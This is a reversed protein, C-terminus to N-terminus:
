RRALLDAYSRDLLDAQGIELATVLRTMTQRARAATGECPVEIEVFTGLGEVRDLHVRTEGVMWLDRVKRVRVDEEFMARLLRLLGRPDSVALKQYESTRAASADPRVYVILEAAPVGKLQRLKLRGSPVLFYTDTQVLPAQRHAGMANLVRRLRAPDTVTAKLELNKMRGEVRVPGFDGRRFTANYAESM